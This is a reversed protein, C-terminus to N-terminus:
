AFQAFRKYELIRFGIWRGLLLMIGLITLYLEPFTLFIGILLNAQFLPYCLLAILFTHGLRKLAEGIPEEILIKAFREATISLVVIPLLLSTTLVSWQYHLGLLGLGLLILVVITMMIMLKLTHLLGFKELPYHLIAVVMIVIGFTAIGWWFPLNTLALGILAPLLIGFTKFGIVNRLIAVVLAVLPLLLLGRWIDLSWGTSNLLSWLASKSSYATNGTGYEKNITFQYDFDIGKTHSILFHDGTYLELYNPPLYAFHQNLVDFPIWQENYYVSSWLHSTRKRTDELILGGVVRAPIGQARCLAVFLRSKGNCSARNRQLTTLADTLVGTNSNTIAHVFDFNAQLTGKVDKQKLRNALSDIVPHQSQIHESERFFMTIDESFESQFPMDAPLEFEVSRSNVQFQYQFVAEKKGDNVWKGIIGSPKWEQGFALSDGLLKRGTISQHESDSPIYAKIFADSPLKSVDFEYTVDFQARPYLEEIKSPSEKWKILMFFLSAILLSCTTWRYM